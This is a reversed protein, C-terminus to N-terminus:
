DMEKYNIEFSKMISYQIQIENTSSIMMDKKGDYYRSSLTKEGHNLFIEIASTDLFIDMEQMDEIEIHRITRGYGSDLFELQFVNNEYSLRLSNLQIQFPTNNVDMHIFCGKEMSQEQKSILLEKKNGQLKIIEQIPYQYIKGDRNELQRPITLCMQWGRDVTPNEYTNDPLGMWAILITRGQEDVFTQPAYFDFGYDLTQYDRAKNEIVKFYGNQDYNEYQYGQKSIGQPCCILFSEGDLYILDPCEWMYGFPVEPEIRSDYTWDMLDKSSYVLVCGEDKKTRAGLYMYYTDKIKSVKPDRVHLTLDKPYVESTLLTKKESFHMGDESYIYNTNSERGTHIFDHEGELKVNGTYFIHMGNEIFASGSYAGSRDSKDDPYIAIDEESYQIFDTTTYHGWYKNGGEPEYSYQYFIHYIGNMQCLGNPDNLWGGPPMLHFKLKHVDEQMRQRCTKNWQMKEM